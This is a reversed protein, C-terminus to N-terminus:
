KRNLIKQVNKLARGHTTTVWTYERGLNDAIDRLSIYQIYRLHLIKYETPSYLREITEIIEKKTHIFEDILNDIESEMDVCKIVADAMKQQSGSSQVREGGISATIGLAIDKWQQREIQKNTIKADLMEVQQLFSKADM